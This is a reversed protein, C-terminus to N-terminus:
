GHDSVRRVTSTMVELSAHHHTTKPTQHSPVLPPGLLVKRGLPRLRLTKPATRVPGRERTVGVESWRDFSSVVPLKTIRWAASGFVDCRASQDAPRQRQASTQQAMKSGTLIPSHSRHVVQGNVTGAISNKAAYETVIMLGPRGSPMSSAHRTTAQDVHTINTTSKATRIKRAFSRRRYTRRCKSSTTIM